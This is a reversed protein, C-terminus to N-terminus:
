ARGTRITGTRMRRSRGRDRGPSPRVCVREPFFPRIRSRAVWSRLSRRSSHELSPRDSNRPERAVKVGGHVRDAADRAHAKANLLLRHDIRHDIRVSGGRAIPRGAANWIVDCLYRVGDIDNLVFPSKTAAIRRFAEVVDELGRVKAPDNAPGLLAMQNSFLTRPWEGNGDLV